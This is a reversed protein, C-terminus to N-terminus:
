SHKTAGNLSTSFFWAFICADLQGGWRGFRRGRRRGRRRRDRRDGGSTRVVCLQWGPSLARRRRHRPEPLALSLLRVVSCGPHRRERRRILTASALRPGGCLIAGGGGGGRGCGNKRWRLVSRVVGSCLSPQVLMWFKELYAFKPLQTVTSYTHQTMM